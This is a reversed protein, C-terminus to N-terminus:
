PRRRRGSLGVEKIQRFLMHTHFDLMPKVDFYIKRVKVEYAIREARSRQHLLLGHRVAQYQLLPSARNLVVVQVERNAHVELDAMLQLQREVCEEGKVREDFLVAVDVDSLKHARGRAVSGFLYSVVVDPQRALHEAMAALDIQPATKPVMEKM